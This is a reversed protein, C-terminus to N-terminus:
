RRALRTRSASIPAWTRRPGKVEPWVENKWVEVAAEDRELARHAPVQASWGHRRLLKSVGQVTYGIHFMRGILTRIRVLTWGGGEDWGHAAPGRELARELRRWQEPSLREVSLPGKSRLADLGGERWDRRWKEVQRVGVRLAAAVDATKEGREFRAGAELRVWERAQQEKPTLGGGQAYRM